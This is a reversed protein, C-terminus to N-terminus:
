KQLEQRVLNMAHSKRKKRVLFKKFFTKRALFGCSLELPRFRLPIPCFTRIKFLLALETFRVFTLKNKLFISCM